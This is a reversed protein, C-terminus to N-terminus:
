PTDDPGDGGFVEACFARGDESLGATGTGNEALTTVVLGDDVLATLQRRLASMPVGAQKALKALSWAKGPTEQQARWLQALVAVLVPDVEDNM